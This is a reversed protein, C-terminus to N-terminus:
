EGEPRPELQTGPLPLDGSLARILLEEDISTGARASVEQVLETFAADRDSRPFMRCLATQMASGGAARVEEAVPQFLREASPEIVDLIQAPLDEAARCRAELAPRDIGEETAIFWHHIQSLPVAGEAYALWAAPEDAGGASLAAAQACPADERGIRRALSDLHIVVVLDPAAGFIRRGSEGGLEPPYETLLAGLDRGAALLPSLACASPAGPPSAKAAYHHIVEVPDLEFGGVDCGWAALPQVAGEQEDLRIMAAKTTRVNGAWLVGVATKLWSAYHAELNVVTRDIRVDILVHATPMGATKESEICPNTVAPVPVPPPPPSSEIIITCGSGLLAGAAVWVCAGRRM